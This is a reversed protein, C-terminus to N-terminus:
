LATCANYILFLKPISQNIVHPYMDTYWVSVGLGLSYLLTTMIIFLLYIDVLLYSLDSDTMFLFFTIEWLSVLNCRSEVAVPRQKSDSLGPLHM